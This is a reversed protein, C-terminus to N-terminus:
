HSCRISECQNNFDSPGYFNLIAQPPQVGVQETTWATSMALTGGTSWGIAAIKEPNVAFGRGRAIRPLENRSWVVADRADSMPGEHLTVEPCLRYDISVPLIGNELLLPIQWPRVINKSFTMFSGGHMM